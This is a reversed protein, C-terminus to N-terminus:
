LTRSPVKHRLRPRALVQLKWGVIERLQQFEFVENRGDSGGTRGIICCLELRGFHFGVLDEDDELSVSRLIRGSAEGMITGRLVLLGTHDKLTAVTGLRTHGLTNPGLLTSQLLIRLFISELAEISGLYTRRACEPARPPIRASVTELLGSIANSSDGLSWLLFLLTFLLSLISFLSCLCGLLGHRGVRGLLATTTSGSTTATLYQDKRGVSPEGKMTQLITPEGPVNHCEPQRMKCKSPTKLSSM